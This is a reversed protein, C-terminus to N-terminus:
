CFILLNYNSVFFSINISFVKFLRNTYSINHKLHRVLIEKLLNSTVLAYSLTSVDSFIRDHEDLVVTVDLLAMNFLNIDVVFAKLSNVDLALAKNEHVDLVVVIGAVVDLGFKVSKEHKLYYWM